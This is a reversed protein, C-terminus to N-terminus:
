KLGTYLRDIFGSRDLETLPGSEIFEAPKRQAFRADRESLHNLTAQVASVTAYPKHPFKAYQYVEELAEADNTALFKGIIRLSEAKRNYFDQAVQSGSLSLASDTDTLTKSFTYAAIFSLGHSTTKRGMLQLSHYTSNGMTPYNNVLGQFQPFPQIAAAVSTDYNNNEFNPYPLGTIGFSALIPGNVPDALDTALDADFAADM